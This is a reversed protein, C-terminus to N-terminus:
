LDIKNGNDCTNYQCDNRKAQWERIKSTGDSLSAMVAGALLISILKKKM